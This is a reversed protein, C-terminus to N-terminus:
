SRRSRPTSSARAHLTPRATRPWTRCNTKNQNNPSPTNNVPHHQSAHQSLQNAQQPRPEQPGTSHAAGPWGVQNRHPGRGQSRAHVWGQGAGLCVSLPGAVMGQAGSVKHSRMEEALERGVVKGNGETCPGGIFGLIRAQCNSMPLSAGLLATAVQADADPWSSAQKTGEQVVM